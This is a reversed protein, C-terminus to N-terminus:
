CCRGNRKTGSTCDRPGAERLAGQAPRRAIFDDSCPGESLLRFTRESVSVREGRPFVNGDDDTVAAYPGRYMVAEGYDLDPGPTPKVATVTASRFHISEVVQWPEPEWKDYTAAVFGADTFAQLFEEEHFAGAICGSWLAPDAKLSDPVPQNSIIDSIAIRGGPRLVRHIERIMAHRDHEAVLNLVCNSIVLDVSADPILPQECRQRDQWARLAEYDAASRVPNDALWAEMAAVDLALDQIYGKRFDVRDAGLREAMEAKYRRALDLMEDTMDVGIVRGGPGVLQAAMYCIKGGGCGLDLVADGPRVYRSPDGCGYDRELIEAPLAKLLEPDYDVPCCLGEERQRAGEAYRNRVAEEM